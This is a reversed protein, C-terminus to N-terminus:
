VMMGSIKDMAKQLSEDDYDDAKIFEIHEAPTYALAKRHKELAIIYVPIKLFKSAYYQMWIEACDRFLVVNYSCGAMKTLLKHIYSLKGFKADSGEKDFTKIAQISNEEILGMRVGGEKNINQFMLVKDGGLREMLLDIVADSAKSLRDRDEDSLKRVVFDPMKGVRIM